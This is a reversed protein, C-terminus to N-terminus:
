TEGSTNSIVAPRSPGLHAPASCLRCAPTGWVGGPDLAEHSKLAMSARHPLLACPGLCPVFWDSGLAPSTGARSRVM